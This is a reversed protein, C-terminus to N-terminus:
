GVGKGVFTKEDDGVMIGDMFGDDRGDMTGDVLKGENEGVSVADDTGVM